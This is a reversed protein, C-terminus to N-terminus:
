RLRQQMQIREELVVGEKLTAQLGPLSVTKRLCQRPRGAGRTWVEQFVAKKMHRVHPRM